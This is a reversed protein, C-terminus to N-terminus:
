LGTLSTYFGCDASEMSSKFPVRAHVSNNPLSSSELGTGRSDCLTVSTFYGDRLRSSIAVLANLFDVVKFSQGVIFSYFSSVPRYFVIRVRVCLFRSGTAVHAAGGM